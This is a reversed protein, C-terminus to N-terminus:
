FAVPGLPSDFGPCRAGKALIMRSSRHASQTM